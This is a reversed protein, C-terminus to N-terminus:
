PMWDVRHGGVTVIMDAGFLGQNIPERGLGIERISAAIQRYKHSSKTTKEISKVPLISAIQVVVFNSGFAQTITNSSSTDAPKSM